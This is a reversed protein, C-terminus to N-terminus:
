TANLTTLASGGPARGTWCHRCSALARIEEGSPGLGPLWHCVSCSALVLMVVAGEALLWPVPASASWRVLRMSEPHADDDAAASLIALKLQSSGGVGSVVSPPMAQRRATSPDNRAEISLRM